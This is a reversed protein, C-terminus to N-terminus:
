NNFYEFNFIFIALNYFNFIKSNTILLQIFQNTKLFFLYSYRLQLSLLVIIKLSVNINLSFKSNYNQILKLSIFIIQM